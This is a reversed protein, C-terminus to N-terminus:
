LSLLFLTLVLEYSEFVTEIYSPSYWITNLFIMSWINIAIVSENINNKVDSPPGNMDIKVISDNLASAGPM